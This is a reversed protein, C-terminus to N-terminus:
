GRRHWHCAGGAIGASLIAASDGGTGAFDRGAGRDGARARASIPAAIFEWINESFLKRYIEFEEIDLITAVEKSLTDPDAVLDPSVGLRYQVINYAMPEGDRDYIM